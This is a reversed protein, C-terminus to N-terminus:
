VTVVSMNRGIMHGGEPHPSCSYLIAVLRHDSHLLIVNM